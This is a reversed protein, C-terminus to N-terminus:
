PELQCRVHFRTDAPTGITNRVAVKLHTSTYSCANPDAAIEYCREVANESCSPVHKVVEPQADSVATVECSDVVPSKTLCPDGVLQKASEGIQQLASSLDASCISTQNSRGPFANAFAALRVGPDAVATTGDPEQFTCSHVLTM